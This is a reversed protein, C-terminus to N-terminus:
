LLSPHIREFRGLWTIMSATNYAVKKKAAFAVETWTVLYAVHREKEWVDSMALLM